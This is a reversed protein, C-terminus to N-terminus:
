DEPYGERPKVAVKVALRASALLRGRVVASACKATAKGVSSSPHQRIPLNPSQILYGLNSDEIGLWGGGVM